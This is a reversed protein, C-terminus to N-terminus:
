GRNNWYHGAESFHPRARPSNRTRSQVSFKNPGFGLAIAVGLVILLMGVFGYVMRAARRGLVNELWHVKDLRYYSDRNGVAAVVAAVGLAISVAGVFMEEHNM